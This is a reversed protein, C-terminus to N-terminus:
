FWLSNGVNSLGDHKKLARVLIIRRSFCHAGNKPFEVTKIEIIELNLKNAQSESGFVYLKRFHSNIEVRLSNTKPTAKILFLIWILNRRNVSWIMCIKARQAKRERERDRDSERDRDCECERPSVNMSMSVSVSATVNM